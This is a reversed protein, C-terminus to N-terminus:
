TSGNSNKEKKDSQVPCGYNNDLTIFAKMKDKTLKTLVASSVYRAVPHNKGLQQQIDQMLKRVERIELNEM